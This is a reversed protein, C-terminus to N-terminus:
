SRGWCGWCGRASRGPSRSCAWRGTAWTRPGSAGHAGTHALRSHHRRGHTPLCQGERGPMGPGAHQGQCAQLPVCRTPPAYAAHMRTYQGVWKIHAMGLMGPGAHMCASAGRVQHREYRVWRLNVQASFCWCYGLRGCDKGGWPGLSGQVEPAMVAREERVTGVRGGGTGPPHRKHEAELSDLLCRWLAAAASAKAPATCLTRHTLAHAQTQACSHCARRRLRGAGHRRRWGRGRGSWGCGGGGRGRRGALHAAIEADTCEALATSCYDLCM